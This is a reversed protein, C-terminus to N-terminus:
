YVLRCANRYVLFYGDFHVFSLNDICPNTPPLSALSFSAGKVLISYFELKLIIPDLILFGMKHM